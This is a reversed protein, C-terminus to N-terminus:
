VDNKSVQCEEKGKCIAVIRDLKAKLDLELKQCRNVANPSQTLSVLAALTQELRANYEDQPEISAIIKEVANLKILEERVSPSDQVFASLLFMSKVVLKARDPSQILGLLCELGGMSIFSNM